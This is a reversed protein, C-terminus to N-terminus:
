TLRHLMNDTLNNAVTNSIFRVGYGGSQGNEAEPANTYPNTGYQQYENAYSMKSSLNVNLRRPAVSGYSVTTLFYFSHQSNEEAAM